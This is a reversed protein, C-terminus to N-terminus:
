KAQKVVSTHRVLQEIQNEFPGPELISASAGPVSLQFVPVLEPRVVVVALIFQGTRLIELANIWGQGRELELPGLEDVLLIDCPCATNLITVGWAMVDADFRYHTTRLAAPQDDVYALPRRDNTRVDLIDIGVKIAGEFRGPCVIGACELGSQRAMDILRLCATTKGSGFAGTLITIPRSM